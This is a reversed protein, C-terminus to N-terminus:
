CQTVSEKANHFYAEKSGRQHIQGFTQMKVTLLSKHLYTKLADDKTTNFLRLLYFLIKPSWDSDNNYNKVM